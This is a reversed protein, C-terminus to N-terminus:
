KKKKTTPKQAQKKKAQPPTTTSPALNNPATRPTKPNPKNKKLQPQALGKGKDIGGEESVEKSYPCQHRKQSWCSAFQCKYYECYCEPGDATV